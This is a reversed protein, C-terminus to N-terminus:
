VNLVWHKLFQVLVFTKHSREANTYVDKTNVRKRCGVTFVNFRTTRSM